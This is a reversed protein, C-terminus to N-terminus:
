RAWAPLGDLRLRFLQRSGGEPGPDIDEAPEFGLRQYFRRSRAGPHDIGFTVAEVVCPPHVWRRCADGLLAEGIGLSRSAAAVVHWGVHYTPAHHYTFLLGGTTADNSDIAVLASGRNINRWVADHFGPDRVMPGFWDEVEAALAVFADFDAATAESIRM